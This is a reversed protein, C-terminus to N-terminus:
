FGKIIIIIILIAFIIGLFSAFYFSIPNTKRYKKISDIKNKDVYKFKEVTNYDTRCNDICENKNKCDNCWKFCMDKSKEPDQTERLINPFYHPTQNFIPAATLRLDCDDKGIVAKANEVCINCNNASPSNRFQNLSSANEFAGLTEFCKNNICNIDNPECVKMTSSCPNLTFNNLNNM